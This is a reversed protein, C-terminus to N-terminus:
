EFSACSQVTILGVAQQHFQTRYARRIDALKAATEVDDPAAIMVLRAGEAVMTGDPARWRGAGPLVTLGDPFRPTVEAAVFADFQAPSVVGGGPISLGFLLEATLSAHAPTVCAPGGPPPQVACGALALLVAAPWPRM